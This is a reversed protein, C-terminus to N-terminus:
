DYWGSVRWQQSERVLVGARGDALVVQLRAFRRPPLDDETSWWREIVPWPGAWGYVQLRQGAWRLEVPAASLLGRASAEIDAGNADLLQAPENWPVAPTPKPLAGPRQAPDDKTAEVQFLTAPNESPATQPVGSEPSTSRGLDTAARSVAEDGLLSQVHLIAAQARERAEQESRETSHAEWLSLQAELEGNVGDPRLELRRIPGTGVRHGSLWGELQWRIRTTLQNSGPEVQWTRRRTLGTTTHATITVRTCILSHAELTAHLRDTLPRASLLATEISELPPDYDATVSLDPPIKRAVIPRLSEGASLRQAQRMTPGFREVVAAPDLRAFDGLTGLGLHRLLAITDGDVLQTLRLHAIDLPALFDADGGPPVIIGRRAALLAAYLDDAVGTLCDLDCYAHITDILLECATEEGGELRAFGRAPLAILGPRLVELHPTLTEVVECVPEFSAESRPKADSSGTRKAPSPADWDPLWAVLVRRDSNM